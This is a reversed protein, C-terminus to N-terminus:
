CMACSDLDHEEDLRNHRGSITQCICPPVAGSSSRVRFRSRRRRRRRGGRLCPLTIRSQAKCTWPMRRDASSTREDAGSGVGWRRATRDDWGGEGGISDAGQPADPIPSTLPNPVRHHRVYRLVPKPERSPCRGHGHRGAAARTMRGHGRM